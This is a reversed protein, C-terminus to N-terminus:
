IAKNVECIREYEEAASKELVMDQWELTKDNYYRCQESTIEVRTM